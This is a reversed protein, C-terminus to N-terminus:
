KVVTGTFALVYNRENITNSSVVISKRINGPGGHNSDFEATVKGKDGPLVAVHTYDAITCGCTPRVSTLYLPKSGTNEFQYVIKVKEGFKVSGFDKLSDIWHITTYNASDSEVNEPVKANKTASSDQCATLLASGLCILGLWLFLNKRITM